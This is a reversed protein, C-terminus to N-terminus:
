WLVLDTLNGQAQLGHLAAAAALLVLVLAISDSILFLYAQMVNCAWSIDVCHSSIMLVDITVPSCQKDPAKDTEHLAVLRYFLSSTPQTAPHAPLM